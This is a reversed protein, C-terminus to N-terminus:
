RTADPSGGRRADERSGTEADSSRALAQDHEQHRRIVSHLRAVATDLRNAAKRFYTAEGRLWQAADVFDQATQADASIKAYLSESSEGLIVAMLRVAAGRRREWDTGYKALSVNLPKFRRRTAAPRKRDFEADSLALLRSLKSTNM